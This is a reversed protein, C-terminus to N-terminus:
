WRLVRPGVLAGAGTVIGIGLTYWILVFGAGNEPCALAYLTATLGGSVLGALAGAARLHVPAQQRIAWCVGVLVPASLCAIRLSCQRWSAGIWLSMDDAPNAMASQMLALSALALVMMAVWWLRSPIPNGPRIMPVLMSIAIAALSLTYSAKMILPLGHAPSLLGPQVGFVLVIALLSVVAGCSLGILLDNRIKKPSVPTLDSALKQILDSTKM